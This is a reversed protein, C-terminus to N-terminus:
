LIKHKPNEPPILQFLSDLLVTQDSNYLSIKALYAKDSALNTSDNEFIIPIGTFPKVITGNSASEVVQISKEDEDIETIKAGTSQEDEDEIQISEVKEEQEQQKSEEEVKEEQKSEEEVKEEQEEQKPEEEVKEEQKPEEKVKEEQKSEEEEVKEQEEQEKEEETLPEEVKIEEEKKEEVQEVKEEEVKVEEEQKEEQIPESSNEFEVVLITNEEPLTTASKQGVCISQVGESSVVKEVSLYKSSSKIPFIFYENQKIDEYIKKAEETLQRKMLNEAKALRYSIILNEKNVRDTDTKKIAEIAKDMLSYYEDYHEFKKANEALFRYVTVEYKPELYEGAEEVIEKMKEVNGEKSYYEHLSLLSNITATQNKSSKAIKLAKSILTFEKKNAKSDKGYLSALTLLLDVKTPDSFNFRDLAFKALDIADSVRDKEGLKSALDSSLKGVEENQEQTGDEFLEVAIKSYKAFIDDNNIDQSFKLIYLAANRGLQAFPPYEQGIEVIRQFMHIAGQYDGKDLCSKGLSSLQQIQAEYQAHIQQNAARNQLKKKQPRVSDAPQEFGFDSLTYGQESSYEKYEQVLNNVHYIGYLFGTAILVKSLITM